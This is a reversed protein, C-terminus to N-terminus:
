KVARRRPETCADSRILFKAEEYKVSREVGSHHYVGVKSVTWIIFFLLYFSGSFYSLM